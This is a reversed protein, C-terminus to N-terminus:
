LPYIKNRSVIQRLSKYKAADPTKAQFSWSNAFCGIIKTIM